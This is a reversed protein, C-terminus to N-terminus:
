RRRAENAALAQLRQMAAEWFEDLYERASAFGHVRVSYVSRAGEHRVDVLGSAELMRLHRSIAPRSIEFRSAIDGVALPGARLELLIQRRVPNGLADLPHM